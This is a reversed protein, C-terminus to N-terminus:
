PARGEQAFRVAEALLVAQRMPAVDHVRVARAGALVAVTVTAATGGWRDLPGPREGGPGPALEAIFSKRSSGVLVPQGTEVLKATRAILELSQAATKAFGIGPDIWIRRRDVGAEVARSVRGMVESVVDCVVDDYRTNDPTVEGRGRNHVLVLEAGAEAVAALLEPDDGGSVDNIVAAGAALARRAVEGKVTDVSVRAGLEGVLREVVPVVRAAEEDAPVPRAGEGYIRGPPRSSEGGVDVVDAGEALMRRAHAVAVGTEAFRGGDSFSDPTVNLIGWVQCRPASETVAGSAVDSHRPAGRQM